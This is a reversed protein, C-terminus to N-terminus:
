IKAVYSSEWRGSIGGSLWEVVPSDYVRVLSNRGSQKSRSNTSGKAQLEDLASPLLLECAATHVCLTASDHGGMEKSVRVQIAGLIGRSEKM